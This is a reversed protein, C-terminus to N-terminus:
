EDCCWGNWYYGFGSRMVHPKKVEKVPEEVEVKPEVPAIVKDSEADVIKEGSALDDIMDGLERAEEETMTPTEMKEEKIPDAEEQVPEEAAMAEVEEQAAQLNEDILADVLDNTQPTEVPTVTKKDTKSKAEKKAM